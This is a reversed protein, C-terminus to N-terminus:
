SLWHAPSSRQPAHSPGTELIHQTVPGSSVTWVCLAKSGANSVRVNLFAAFSEVNAQVCVSPMTAHLGSCCRWESLWEDTIFFSILQRLQVKHLYPMHVAAM